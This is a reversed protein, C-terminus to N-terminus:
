YCMRGGGIKLIEIELIKQGFRQADSSSRMWFDINGAYRVATAHDNWESGGRCHFRENMCDDITYVKKLSFGAPFGSRDRVVSTIRFKTGLPFCNSAVMGHYVPGGAGIWPTSDTQRPDSSYATARVILYKKKQIDSLFRSVSEQPSTMTHRKVKRKRSPPQADKRLPLTLTRESVQPIQM